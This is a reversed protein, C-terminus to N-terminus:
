PLDEWFWEITEEMVKYVPYDPGENKMLNLPFCFEATRYTSGIYNTACPRNHMPSLSGYYSIFTFIRREAPIRGAFDRTNSIAVYCVKPIGRKGFNRAPKSADYGMLKKCKTTDSQLNPLGKWLNFPEAQIFELTLSDLNDWVPVFVKEIGFYETGVQYTNPSGSRIEELDSPERITEPLGFNNLGILWLRGGINLYQKYQNYNDETIAPVSGLNLVIVLDYQALIDEGPASKNTSTPVGSRDYWVEFYDSMGLQSFAERYFPRVDATDVAGGQRNGYTTADVVLITKKDKDAYRFRPKLIRFDLWAPTEHSVLADDLARVRLQYWGYGSDGFNELGKFVHMEESVWRTYIWEGAFLLSDLSSDVVATTEPSIPSGLPSDFPGVLEWKFKFEPQSRLNPYDATDLGSWSISIGKWTATTDMLCYHNQTTFDEDVDIFAEPRHNNRSYMRHIVEESIAGGNDVARLFLYQPTYTEPDMEAYMMVDRQHGGPEAVVHNGNLNKLGTQDVWSTSDSPISHLFDKVEELGGFSVVSDTRMVAYQYASIFGDVDTGFWYIRPNVSFQTSEPPINVFFVQPPTNAPPTGERELKSCGSFALLCLGSVVFYFGLKRM